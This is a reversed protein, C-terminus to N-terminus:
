LLVEVVNARVVRAEIVKKSRNNRVKITDGFAGSELAVGQSTVSITGIQAKVQVLANRPVLVHAKLLHPSLVQGMTLHRKAVKGKISDESDLYGSHLSLIDMQAFESMGELPENKPIPTRAVLVDRYLSLELGIILSWSPNTCSANLHSRRRLWNAHTPKVRVPELCPSLSLRPDLGSVRHSLNGQNSQALNSAEDDIFGQVEQLIQSRFDQADEQTDGQAGLAVQTDGQAPSSTFYAFIFMLAYQGFFKTNFLKVRM